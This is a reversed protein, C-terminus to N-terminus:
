HLGLPFFWETQLKCTFKWVSVTRLSHSVNGLGRHVGWQHGFGPQSSVWHLPGHYPEQGDDQISSIIHSPCSKLLYHCYFEFEFFGASPATTSWLTGLGSLWLMGNRWRLDACSLINLAVNTEKQASSLLPPWAGVKEQGKFRHWIRQAAWFRQGGGNQNWFAKYCVRFHTNKKCFTKLWLCNINLTSKM